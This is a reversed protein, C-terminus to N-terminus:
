PLVKSPCPLMVPAQRSGLAILTQCYVFYATWLHCQMLIYSSHALNGRHSRDATGPLLCSSCLCAHSTSIFHLARPSWSGDWCNSHCVLAVSDAGADELVRGQAAHLNASRCQRVLLPGRRLCSNCVDHGCIRCRLLPVPQVRPVLGRCPCPPKDRLRKAAAARLARAVATITGPPWQGTSSGSATDRKMSTLM